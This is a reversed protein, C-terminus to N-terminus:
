DRLEIRFMFQENAPCPENRQASMPYKEESKTGEFTMSLYFHIVSFAINDAKSSAFALTSYNTSSELFHFTAGNHHM